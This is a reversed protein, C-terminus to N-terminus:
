PYYLAVSIKLTIDDNLSTIISFIRNPSFYHRLQLFNQRLWASLRVKSTAKLAM